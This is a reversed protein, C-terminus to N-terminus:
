WSLNQLTANFPSYKGHSHQLYVFVISWQLSEDSLTPSYKTPTHKAFTHKALLLKSNSTSSCIILEIICATLSRFTFTSNTHKKFPEYYACCHKRMSYKAKRLLLPLSSSLLSSMRIGPDSCRLRATCPSMTITSINGLSCHFDREFAMLSFVSAFSLSATIYYFLEKEPEKRDYFHSFIIEKWNRIKAVAASSSLSDVTFTVGLPRTTPM